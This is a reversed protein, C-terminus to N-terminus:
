RDKKERVRLIYVTGNANATALFTGTPDFTLAHVTGPFTWPDRLKKLTKPESADWVAVQTGIQVAALLSGAPSVAFASVTNRVVDETGALKQRSAVDWIALNGTDHVTALRKSDPL